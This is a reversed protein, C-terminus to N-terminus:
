LLLVKTIRKFNVFFNVFNWEFENSFIYEKFLSRASVCVSLINSTVYAEVRILFPWLRILWICDICSQEKLISLLVNIHPHVSACTSVCVCVWVCLIQRVTGATMVFHLKLSYKLSSPGVDMLNELHSKTSRDGHVGSLSLSSFSNVPPFLTLAFQQCGRWYLNSVDVCPRGNRM